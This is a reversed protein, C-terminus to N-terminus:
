AAAVGRLSCTRGKGERKATYLHEDAREILEEGDRCGERLMSSAGVSLDTETAPGLMAASRQRYLRRVRGMVQEARELTGGPMFVVFEDGGLRVAVDEARVSTRILEAILILLEDGKGHGLTDNVEKFNDLDIVVCVLDTGSAKGAEILEPLQEDMFRRNGLDTLPDRMALRSLGRTARATAKSVRDDLTRRLRKAEHGDRVRDVVLRRVGRALRGVEDERDTPLEKVARERREASMADVQDALRVVPGVVGRRLGWWAAIGGALVVLLAVALGANGSTDTQGALFGAALCGALGLSVRGGIVSSRPRGRFCARRLTLRRGSSTEAEATRREAEAIDAVTEVVGGSDVM